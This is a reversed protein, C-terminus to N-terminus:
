WAESPKPFYVESADCHHWNFHEYIYDLMYHEPSGAEFLEGVTLHRVSFEGSGDEVNVHYSAMDEPHHGMCEADTYECFYTPGSPNYFTANKFPQVLRKYILLRDLTPHIPWFSPDAPSASELHEGAAFPTNCLWEAFKSWHPEVEELWPWKYQYNQLFMKYFSGNTDQWDIPCIMHCDVQPTDDSCYTPYNFHFPYAGVHPMDRWLGKVIKYLDEMGEGIASDPIVGRLEDFVNGTKLYGGIMVHVAGHPADEVNWMFDYADDYDFTITFHSQCTPWADVTGSVGALMHCRTVFENKNMNWPSRLYGYPNHIANHRDKTVRQYGYRGREVTHLPSASANGFWDDRWYDLQWFSSVKNTTKAVIWADITYDWYPLAISPDVVRLAIEYANSLANHQMLFGLGSHLKDTDHDGALNLHIRTIEDTTTFGSGYLAQGEATSLKTIVEVADFYANRAVDSMERIERRVYRVWFERSYEAASTRVTVMYNGLTELVLPLAPTTTTESVVAEWTSTRRVVWQFHSAERPANALVLDTPTHPEIVSARSLFPYGSGPLGNMRSHENWAEIVTSSEFKTAASQRGNIAAMTTTITDGISWHSVVYAVLVVCALVIALLGGRPRSAQIM